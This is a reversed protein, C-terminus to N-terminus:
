NNGKFIVFTMSLIAVLVLLPISALVMISSNDLHGIKEATVEAPVIFYNYTCHTVTSTADNVMNFNIENITYADYGNVNNKGIAINDATYTSTSTSTVIKSINLDDITGEIQIACAVGDLVSRGNAYIESDALVYAGQNPSKMVYDSNDSLAWGNTYNFSRELNGNLYLKIVGNSFEMKIIHSASVPWSTRFFLDQGGSGGPAGTSQIYYGSGTDFGYRLNLSDVVCFISGKFPEVDAGNVKMITPNTMDWIIEYDSSSDIKDMYGLAGDVNSYTRETTTADAIVPMLVSGLMIIAILAGVAIIPIKNIGNM